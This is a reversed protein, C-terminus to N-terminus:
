YYKVPNQETTSKWVAFNPFKETIARYFLEKTCVETEFHGADVLIVPRRGVDPFTNHKCDATVYVQAGREYALPLFEAAAGGCIAVRSVTFDGDPVASHRLCPIGFTSKVKDLFDRWPLPAPLNGIVGLGSEPDLTEMDTLGLMLGDEHSVGEQACDCSTHSSYVTIGRTLAGIVCPNVRGQDAIISRTATFILPHHAVVLNCGRQKAEDLIAETVDVCTLVGTCEAEPDGCQWGSNDWSEQGSLPFRAEVASIIDSNTM